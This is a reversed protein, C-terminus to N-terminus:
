ARAPLTNWLAVIREREATIRGSMPQRDLLAVYRALLEASQSYDGKAFCVAALAGSDWDKQSAGSKVSRARTLWEESRSADKHHFGHYFSAAALFGRRVDPLMRNSIALARELIEAARQADDKEAADSLLFSLAVPLRSKDEATVDLKKMLEPPWERPQKGQVDLALLYLCAVIREGVAGKRSLLLLLKADNPLFAVTYPICVSIVLLLNVWLLFRIFLGGPLLFTLILLVLSAAPGGLVVRRYRDVLNESSRPMAATLGGWFLNRLQFRFRWGGGERSWLFAGVMFTRLEFGVTMGVILHGLEHVFVVIYFAPVFLVLAQPAILPGASARARDLGILLGGLSFGVLLAPVWHVKRAPLPQDGDLIPTQSAASPTM